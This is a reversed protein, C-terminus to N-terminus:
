FEDICALAQNMLGYARRMGSNEELELYEYAYGIADDLREYADAWLEIMREDRVAEEDRYAPDVSAYHMEALHDMNIDSM